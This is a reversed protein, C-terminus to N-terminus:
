QKFRFDVGEIKDKVWGWEEEWRQVAEENRELVQTMYETAQKKTPCDGFFFLGNRTIEWRTGRKRVELEGSLVDPRKPVLPLPVWAIAKAFAEVMPIAKAIFKQGDSNVTIIWQHAASRYIDWGPHAQDLQKILEEIDMTEGVKIEM